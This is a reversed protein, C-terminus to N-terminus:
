CPPADDDPPMRPEWIKKIDLFDQYSADPLATRLLDGRLTRLSPKEEANSPIPTFRACPKGRRTVIVEEGDDLNRLIESFKAKFERVSYTTVNTVM